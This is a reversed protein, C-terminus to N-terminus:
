ASIKEKQTKTLLYKGFRDTVAKYSKYDDIQTLYELVLDGKLTDNPVYEIAKGLGQGGVKDQEMNMWVLSSLVQMGYPYNYMAQTYVAM